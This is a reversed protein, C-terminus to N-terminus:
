QSVVFEIRRNQAKGEDTDNSAIPQTEGYGVASLRASSVGAAILYNAVASARRESLNQNYDDAGDADTHGAVEIQADPCAQATYSLRDLIGFSAEEIIAEATAFRIKGQALINTLALQCQAPSLAGLGGTEFPAPRVSIEPVGTFGSPVGNRVKRDIDIKAPMTLAVGRIILQDDEIEAEGTELRSLMAIGVSAAAEFGPPTGSAIEMADTIAINEGMFDNVGATIASATERSPVFGTLTITGDPAKTAAWNYSGETVPPTIAESALTAGAPLASTAQAVANDFAAPTAAIGNIGYATDSITVSGSALDPLQGLGFATIDAYGSPEGSAIKLNNTIATGPNATAAAEAVADRAEISPAFGDLTISGDDNKVASWTYPSVPPATIAASALTGGEPLAGNARDLASEYADSDAAAGTIAYAADSLSAEGGTLDGLQSVAFGALAAFGAPAGRAITMEDTVAIGPNATEAASVIQDRIDEGPVNGTLLIGDAGKVASFVYPAAIPPLTTADAVVRVDYANGAILAAAAQAEENPAMGQLTADRGDLAVSAWPHQASLAEGAKATLDEEITSSHFVMALATLIATAILGPLIWSRWNCM